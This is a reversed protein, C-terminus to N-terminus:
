RRTVHDGPMVFVGAENGANDNLLAELTWHEGDIGVLPEQFGDFDGPLIVLWPEGAQSLERYVDGDVDILPVDGGRYGDLSLFVRPLAGDASIAILCEGDVGDFSEGTIDPIPLYSYPSQEGDSLLAAIEAAPEGPDAGKFWHTESDFWREATLSAGDTGWVSAWDDGLDRYFVELGSEWADSLLHPDPLHAVSLDEITHPGGQFAHIVPQATARVSDAGFVADEEVVCVAGDDDCSLGREPTTTLRANVAAIPRDESARERALEPFSDRTTVRLVPGEIAAVAGGYIAVDALQAELPAGPLDPRPDTAGADTLTTPLLCATLLLILPTNRM